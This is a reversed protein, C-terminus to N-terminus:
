NFHVLLAQNKGNCKSVTDNLSILVNNNSTGVERKKEEEMGRNVGPREMNRLQIGNLNLWLVYM